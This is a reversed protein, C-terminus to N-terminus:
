TRRGDERTPLECPPELSQISVPWSTGSIMLLLRKIDLMIDFRIELLLELLRVFRSLFGTSYWAIQM